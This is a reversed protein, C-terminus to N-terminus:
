YLARIDVELLLNLEQPFAVIANQQGYFSQSFHLDRQPLTNGSRRTTTRSGIQTCEGGEEEEPGTASRTKGEMITGLRKM